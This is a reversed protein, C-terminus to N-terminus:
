RSTQRADTKQADPRVIIRGNFVGRARGGLIGKSIERSGCHPRAHDITTHNDVLRRGGALYVGYLACTGGEGDLVAAVDNRVLAGGLTLSHSAVTANRRALVHLSSVHGAELGERQVKYHDLVANEDVVVETVANTLYPGADGAYSEVVAA